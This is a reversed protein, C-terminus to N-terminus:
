AVFVKPIELIIRVREDSERELRVSSSYLDLLRRVMALHISTDKLEGNIIIPKLINFYIELDEGENFLSKYSFVILSHDSRDDISAIINQELDFKNIHIIINEFVSELHKLELKLDIDGNKYFVGFEKDTNHKLVQKNFIEKFSRPLAIENSSKSNIDSYTVLDYLLNQIKAAANQTLEIYENVKPDAQKEGLQNNVLDLYIQIYRLPEQIQHNSLYNLLDEREESDKLLKNLVTATFATAFKIDSNSWNLSKDRVTEVWTEFSKRPNIRGVADIEKNPKGSWKLEEIFEKRFFVLHSNDDNLQFSLLGAIKSVNELKFDQRLNNSVILKSKQKLIYDLLANLDEAEVSKQNSFINMQSNFVLAFCDLDLEEIISDKINALVFNLNDHSDFQSAYSELLLNQKFEKQKMEQLEFLILSQAFQNVILELLIRVGFPIFNVDNHHCAIMGWLKSHVMISISLSANVNMNRLYELHVLSVSRLTSFSLDVVDDRVPVLEFNEAKVKPILRLHNLAYLKRAQEPIDSAPFSHDLYSYMEKDKAEAIVVGDWNDKFKYLKVRSFKTISKIEQVLLEFLAEKDKINQIKQSFKLSSLYIDQSDIFQESIEPKELELILVKSNSHIVTNYPRSDIILEIYRQHHNNSSSLVYEIENFKDDTILNKLNLNTIESLDLDWEDLLNESVQLFKYDRDMVILFGHGQIKNILHIKEKACNQIAKEVQKDDLEIGM